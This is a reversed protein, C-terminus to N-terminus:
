DYLGIFSFGMQWVFDFAFLAVTLIAMVVLVVVTSSYVERWTPWSVKLMEAEVAVLFDAFVPYHTLRFAVWGFFATGLVAVFARIEPGGLNYFYHYFSWGGLIVIVLAAWLTLRRAKRGQSPKYLDFKTLEKFLESM